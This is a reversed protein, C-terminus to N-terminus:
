WIKSDELTTQTLCSAPSVGVTTLTDVCCTYTTYPQLNPISLSYQDGNIVTIEEPDLENNCSVNFSRLDGDSDDLDPAEWTVLLSTSNTANVSLM